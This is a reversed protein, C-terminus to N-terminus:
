RWPACLGAEILVAGLDRGDPLACTGVERDYSQRGSLRCELSVGRVLRRMARTAARGAATDRAACDLNAIRVPVGHLEVTDGDRVHSVPGSLRTGNLEAGEERSVPRLPRAPHAPHAPSVPPAPGDGQWASGGRLGSQRPPEPPANQLAVIGAPRETRGRAEPVGLAANVHPVLAFATGVLLASRISSLARGLVSERGPRFLFLM